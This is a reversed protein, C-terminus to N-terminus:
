ILFWLQSEISTTDGSGGTSNITVSGTGGPPSITINTGAVIQTVGGGGANLAYSATEAYSASTVPTTSNLSGTISIGSSDATFVTTGNIVIDLPTNSKIKAM